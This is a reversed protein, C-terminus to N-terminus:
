IKEIKEATYGAGDIKRRLDFDSIEKKMRVTATGEKLSVETWTDESNLANEVRKKCHSCTMGSIKIKVTYPYHSADKDAVRVTEAGDNGGGCCGHAIKKIYSKLGVAAIVILILVIIATSM